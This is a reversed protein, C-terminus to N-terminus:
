LMQIEHTNINVRCPAPQATLSSAHYTYIWNDQVNFLMKDGMSYIDMEVGGFYDGFYDEGKEGVRQIAGGKSIYLNASDPVAHGLIRREIWIRLDGRSYVTVIHEERILFSSDANITLGDKENFKYDWGFEEVAFRWTLPFYTVDRFLLLPYPENANDINRGNVVIPGAAINATYSDRNKTDRTEFEFDNWRTSDGVNITLGSEHTWSSNLNLLRCKFYTMPFYTIGRYVLLPYQEDRFTQQNEQRSYYVMGNYEVRSEQANYEIGNLTVNFQPISVTITQTAAAVNSSWAIYPM